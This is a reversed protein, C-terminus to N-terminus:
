PAAPQGRIENFSQLYTVRQSVILGASSTVQVPGGLSGQGFSRYAQQGPALTLSLRPASDSLQIFADIPGATPNFLHINDQLMGPSYLDYWNFYVATQGASPPPSGAVENFSDLYTVRQSSIVPVTATVKVPGGATGRDFSRYAGTGPAVTFSVSLNALAVWVNAATAGPNIVHINDQFMGDSQRDYYTFYTQTSGPGSSAPVENFSNLYTVRQSALVPQSAQLRVPGGISGQPFARYEHGGPAVGFSVTQGNLTMTVDANSDGPNVVHINDQSMGPSAKDYWPFWSQTSAAGAPLAAVENFSSQYSVRQSALVPQWSTVLVPGGITGAPFSVHTESPAVVSFPVTARTPITVCGQAPATTGRAPNIVHLNDQTM